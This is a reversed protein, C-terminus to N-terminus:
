IVARSADYFFQQVSALLHTLCTHCYWTPLLSAQVFSTALPSLFSCIGRLYTGTQPPILGKSLSRAELVFAKFMKSGFLFNREFAIRLLSTNVDWHPGLKTAYFDGPMDLFPFKLESSQM